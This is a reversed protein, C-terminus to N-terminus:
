YLNRIILVKEKKSQVKEAAKEALTYGGFEEHTLPDEVSFAQAEAVVLADPAIEQISDWGTDLFVKTADTLGEAATLEELHRKLEGLTIVEPQNIM